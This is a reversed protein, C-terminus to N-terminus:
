IVNYKKNYVDNDCILRSGHCMASTYKKNLVKRLVFKLIKPKSVGNEIISTETEFRGICTRDATNV